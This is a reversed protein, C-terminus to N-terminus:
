RRRELVYYPTKDTNSVAFSIGDDKKTLSLEPKPQGDKDLPTLHFDGRGVKLTVSGNVGEM